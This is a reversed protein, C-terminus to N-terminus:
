SILFCREMATRHEIGGTPLIPFGAAVGSCEVSRPTQQLIGLDSLGALFLYIASPMSCICASPSMHFVHMCTIGLITWLQRDCGMNQQQVQWGTVELV